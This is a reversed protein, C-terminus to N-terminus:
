VAAGAMVWGNTVWVPVACRRVQHQMCSASMCSSSAASAVRVQMALHRLWFSCDAAGGAMTGLIKDTV